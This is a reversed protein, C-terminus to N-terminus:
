EAPIVGLPQMMGMDDQNGWHEVAKGDAIRVIHTETFSVKKGTAPIGMFDGTHTGTNTMRGVVLDGEAVLVDITAHLDPFASFFMSMLQKMGETGSPVGPAPNHDIYNAAMLEDVANVNKDNLVEGIFRTFLTKNAESM